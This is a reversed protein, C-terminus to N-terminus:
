KIMSILKYILRAALFETVHNGPLPLVEVVDFGVIKSNKSIEKLIFLMENWKLGNPEPTGVGPAISPDLSDFDISLYVEKGKIKRVIEKMVIALKRKDLIHKYYIPINNKKAFEFEEKSISRVGIEILNKNHEFIRKMVCAHSVKSGEYEERLDAHADINIFYVEKPFALAAGLTITHEGGLLIPLKKKDLIDKVVEYIRRVMAESNGRVPEIEDITCIGKKHAESETEVDFLEVQRSAKIIELPANRCGPVYSTTSDYPVPVVVFKSKDFNSFEEELGLFNFPLGYITKM